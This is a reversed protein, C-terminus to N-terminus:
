RETLKGSELPLLSFIEVEGGDEWGTRFVPVYEQENGDKKILVKWPNGGHEHVSYREGRVQITPQKM